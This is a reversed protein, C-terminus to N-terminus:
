IEPDIGIGHLGTFDLNCTFESLVSYFASKMLHHMLSFTFPIKTHTHQPNFVVLKNVVTYM